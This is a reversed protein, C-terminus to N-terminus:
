TYNGKVAEIIQWKDGEKKVSKLKRLHNLIKGLEEKNMPNRNNKELEENVLSLIRDDKVCNKEDKNNWITQIVAGHRESLQITMDSYFNKVIVLGAVPILWPQALGGFILIVGSAFTLLKKWDFLINGPKISKITNTNPDPVFDCLHDSGRDYEIEPAKIYTFNNIIRLSLEESNKVDSNKLLNEVDGIFEYKKEIEKHILQM